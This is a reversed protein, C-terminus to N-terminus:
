KKTKKPIAVKQKTTIINISKQEKKLANLKEKRRERYRKAVDKAKQSARYKKQALQGKESYYYKKSSESWAM